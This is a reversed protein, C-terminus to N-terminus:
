LIHWMLRAIAHAVCLTMPRYWMIRAVRCSDRYMHTCTQPEHWAQHCRMDENNEMDCVFRKPYPLLASGLIGVACVYEHTCAVQAQVGCRKHQSKCISSEAQPTTRLEFVQYVCWAEVVWIVLGCRVPKPGLVRSCTKSAHTLHLDCAPHPHAVDCIAFYPSRCICQLSAM